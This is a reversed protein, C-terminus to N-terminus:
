ALNSGRLQQAEKQRALEERRRAGDGASEAALQPQIAQAHARCPMSCRRIPLDPRGNAAKAHRGPAAFLRGRCRATSAVKYNSSQAGSFHSSSEGDSFIDPPPKSPTPAARGACTPCPLCANSAGAYEHGWKGQVQSIADCRAATQWGKATSSSSCHEPQGAPTPTSGGCASAESSRERVRRGGGKRWESWSHGLALVVRRSVLGGLRVLLSSHGECATEAAAAMRPRQRTFPAARTVVCSSSQELKPQWGATVCFQPQWDNAPAVAWNSGNRGGWRIGDSRGVIRLFPM